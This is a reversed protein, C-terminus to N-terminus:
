VEKEAKQKDRIETQLMKVAKKDAKLNMKKQWSTKLPKV